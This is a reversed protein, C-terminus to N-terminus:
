DIGLILGVPSDETWAEEEWTDRTTTSVLVLTHLQVSVSTIKLTNNNQVGLVRLLIV